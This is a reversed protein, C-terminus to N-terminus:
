EIATPPLDASRPEEGTPRTSGGAGGEDEWRTLGTAGALREARRAAHFRRPEADLEERKNFSADLRGLLEGRQDWTAASRELIERGNRTDMGEARLRDASARTHCEAARDRPPGSTPSIDSM